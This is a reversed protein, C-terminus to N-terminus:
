ERVSAVRSPVRRRALARCDDDCEPLARVVAAQADCFSRLDPDDQRACLELNEITRAYLAAREGAPLTALPNPDRGLAVTAVVIAVLAVFAVLASRTERLEQKIMPSASTRYPSSSRPPSGADMMATLVEASPHPHARMDM